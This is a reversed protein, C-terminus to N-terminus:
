GKKLAARKKLRNAQALDERKRRQRREHEQQKKVRKARDSM